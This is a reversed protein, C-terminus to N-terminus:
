QHFWCCFFFFVHDFITQQVFLKALAQCARLRIHCMKKLCFFFFLFAFHFIYSFIDVQSVGSLHIAYDYSGFYFISSIITPAQQLVNLVFRVNKLLNTKLEYFTLSSSTAILVIECTHSSTFCNKWKRTEARMQKWM